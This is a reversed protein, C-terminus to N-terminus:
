RPENSWFNAITEGDVDQEFGLKLLTGVEVNEIVSQEPVEFTSSHARNRAEADVLRYKM